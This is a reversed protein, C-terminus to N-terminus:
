LFVNLTQQKEQSTRAPCVRVTPNGVQKETGINAPFFIPAFLVQGFGQMIHKGSHALRQV